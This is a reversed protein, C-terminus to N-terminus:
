RGQRILPRAVCSGGLGPVDDLLGGAAANLAEVPHPSKVVPQVRLTLCFRLYQWPRASLQRSGSVRARVRHTAGKKTTNVAAIPRDSRPRVPSFPIAPM